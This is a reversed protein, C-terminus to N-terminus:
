LDGGLWGHLDSMFVDAPYHEGPDTHDTERYAASVTAHTVVGGELPGPVRPHTDSPLSGFDLKLAAVDLLRPPIKYQRCARAAKYAARKITNAHRLWEAREWAAYGAQEIHLGNSNLPPAGWPVVFDNLCRFCENDDVVLTASGGSGPQMFFEAASAATPGETSHLVIYRISAQGRAGSHHYAPYRLSCAHGFPVFASM